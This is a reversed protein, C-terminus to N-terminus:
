SPTQGTLMKYTTHYAWLLASIKLDWVDRQVNCIKSLANELIKNFAEITGNAQPHYPTTKHHQIQFEEILKDMLQNVFHTGQDSIVINPCGFQNLVHDFLFIATTTAICEKVLM